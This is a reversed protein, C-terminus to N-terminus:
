GGPHARAPVPVPAPAPGPAAPAGAARGPFLVFVVALVLVAVAAALAVPGVRRPRRAVPVPGDPPGAAPRPLGLVETPPDAPDGAGTPAAPSTPSSPATARAPGATTAAVGNAGRRDGPPVARAADAAPPGAPRGRPRPRAPAASSAGTSTGRPLAAPAGTSAAIAAAGLAAAHMPHAHDAVPRGLERSVREAVLPIRSSGGVLLVSHLDAPTLGASRVTRHLATIAADVAPRVIEEFASRTLRVESQRGPLFVAVVTETDLSLAEKALVCDQRLRALAAAVQADAPDLGSLAGDTSEDVYTLIAADLDVGGLREISEPRGLIEFGEDRRRVVTADVAGGGFDHVAVVEGDGLRGALAHHAAAEPETVMRPADLGATSAVRDFLERRHPGWHAPHTLVVREPPGGEADAVRQVVDRLQAAFLAGAPYPVGGLVIPLPDALRRKVERAARGPHTLARREAADGTVLRGDAELHVVAPVVVSREGLTVMEPGSRRAAAAAAFTTGLDVGLSYTM